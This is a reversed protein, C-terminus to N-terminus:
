ISHGASVDIAVSLLDTTALPPMPFLHQRPFCFKKKLTIYMNKFQNHHYM